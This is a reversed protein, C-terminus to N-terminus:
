EGGSQPDDETLVVLSREWLPSHSLADVFM